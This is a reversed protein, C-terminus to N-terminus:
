EGLTVEWIRVCGDAGGGILRAKGGVAKGLWVVVGVGGPIAGKIAVYKMTKGVSWIYVNTDLSGSALHTPSSGSPSPLFELSTIRATHFTWRSTIPQLFLM